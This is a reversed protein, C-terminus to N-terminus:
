NNSIIFGLSSISGTCFNCKKMNIYLENKKLAEFVLKLHQLHKDENRSYVLIDDFYVVVIKNLFPHLVQHMLHMFTNPANSLSFPMALWEFLGENIKFATKWEDGSRTRIQHYGSKLDVKSFILAGGLQDLLDSIRPM